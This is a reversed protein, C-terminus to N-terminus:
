FTSTLTLAVRDNDYDFQAANATREERTAALQLSLRRSMTYTVSASLSNVRSNTLTPATPIIIAGPSENEQRNGILSLAIRSGIQYDLEATYAQQIEYSSGSLLTPTVQRQFAARAHLRSTARYTVYGSYTLGNFDGAPLTTATVPPPSVTHAHTYGVTASAEIRGGLKRTFSLDAGTTEYGEPTLAAVLRDGNDTKSYTGTLALSGFAPRQYSVGASGHTTRSSGNAATIQTNSTWVQGVDAIIGLGSPRSCSLNADVTETTQINLITSELNNNNIGPVGPTTSTPGGPTQFVATPDNLESRGHAYGGSLTTHCPGLALVGGGNLNVRSDNLRTNNQHFLYSTSGSLFVSQRGVPM